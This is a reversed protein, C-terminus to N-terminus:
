QCSISIWRIFYKIAKSNSIALTKWDLMRPEFHQTVFQILYAKKYNHVRHWEAINRVWEPGNYVKRITYLHMDFYLKSVHGLKRTKQTTNDYTVSRKLRSMKEQWTRSVNEIM